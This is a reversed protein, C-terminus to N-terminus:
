LLYLTLMVSFTLLWDTTETLGTMEHLIRSAILCTIANLPLSALSYSFIFTTGSYLGERTEQYYRYRHTQDTFM